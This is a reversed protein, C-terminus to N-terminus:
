SSRQVESVTKLFCLRGVRYSSTSTRYSAEHPNSYIIMQAVDLRGRDMAAEEEYFGHHLARWSLELIVTLSLETM